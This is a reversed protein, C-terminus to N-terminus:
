YEKSCVLFCFHLITYSFLFIYLLIWFHCSIVDLDIFLLLYYWKIHCILGWCLWFRTPIKTVLLYKSIYSIILLSWMLLLKVSRMWAFWFSVALAGVLLWERLFSSVPQDSSIQRYVYNCGWACSGYIMVSYSAVALIM